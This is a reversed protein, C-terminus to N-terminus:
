SNCESLLPGPSERKVKRHRNHTHTHKLKFGKLREESFSSFAAVTSKLFCGARFTPVLDLCHPGLTQLLNVKEPALFGLIELMQRNPFFIGAIELFKGPAKRWFERLSPRSVAM